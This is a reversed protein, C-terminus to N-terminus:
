SSPSRAPVGARGSTARAAAVRNPNSSPAGSYREFYMQDSIARGIRLAAQNMAHDHSGGGGRGEAQFRGVVTCDPRRVEGEVHMQGAGTNMTALAAPFFFIWLAVRARRGGLSGGDVKTVWGSVTLPADTQAEIPVATAELRRAKLFRVLADTVKPGLEDLPGGDFNRIFADDALQFERVVVKTDPPLINPRPGTSCAVLAFLPVILFPSRM